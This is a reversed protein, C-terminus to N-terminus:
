VLHIMVLNSNLDQTLSWWRKFFRGRPQTWQIFQLRLSSWQKRGPNRKTWWWNLHTKDNSSINTGVLIENTNRKLHNISCREKTQFWLLTCAFSESNSSLPRIAFIFPPFFYFKPFFVLLVIQYEKNITRRIVICTNQQSEREKNNWSTGPAREGKWLTSFLPDQFCPNLFLVPRSSHQFRPIKLLM